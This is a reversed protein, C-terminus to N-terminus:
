DKSLHGSDEFKNKLRERFDSLYEDVKEQTGFRQLLIDNGKEIDSEIEEPNAMKRMNENLEKEVEEFGKKPVGLKNNNKMIKTKVKKNFGL